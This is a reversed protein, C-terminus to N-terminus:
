PFPLTDCGFDKTIKLIYAFNVSGYQKGSQTMKDNDDYISYCCHNCAVAGKYSKGQFITSIKAHQTHHM